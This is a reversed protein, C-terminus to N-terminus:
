IEYLSLAQHYHQHASAKRDQAHHVDGMEQHIYATWLSNNHQEALALAQELCALSGAFKHQKHQAVGLNFRVFVLSEITEAPLDGAQASTAQSRVTELVALAELCYREADAYREQLGAIYSLNQLVHSL